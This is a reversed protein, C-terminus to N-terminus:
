RRPAAEAASRDLSPVPAAVIRTNYRALYDAHAATRPYHEDAGYPYRRMGHFPLPAVADPTASRINMEKSFGDAYLLFTRSWGPATAPLATADFTLAIEDGPGAIAFMDDSERLIPRVDGYRTYAGAPQKWPSAASVKAYDYGYPERGDPSVEESFGRWQLTASVPDLRRTRAGGADGNTNVLIQDWYIRMSTVNRVERSPGLFRGALDVPV